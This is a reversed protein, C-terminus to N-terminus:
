KVPKPEPNPKPNPKPNTQPQSIESIIKRLDAESKIKDMEKTADFDKPMDTVKPLWTLFTSLSMYGKDVMGQFFVMQNVSFSLKSYDINLQVSGLKDDDINQNKIKKIYQSTYYLAMKFAAEMNKAAIALPSIKEGTKAQIETATKEVDITPSVMEVGLHAMQSELEKIRASVVNLGAGSVEVYELNGHEGFVNVMITPGIPIAGSKEEDGRLDLRRCLIPVCCIHCWNDFDSTKQYHLINLNGLELLPPRSELTAMKRGYVVVLPIYDLGTKGEEVLKFSEEEKEIVKELIKYTGVNFIIYREVEKEGYTGNAINVCYKFTIQSLEEKGGSHNIVWNVAQEAKYSTWWPRSDQVESLLVRSGDSKEPMKPADIYIFSHGDRWADTFSERLFQALDSGKLDIDEFLTKFMGPMKGTDVPTPDSKFVMGVGSEVTRQFENFFVSAKLRKQYEGPDELPMQDLYKAGQDRIDLTGGWLDRTIELGPEMREYAANKYSPKNEPLIDSM